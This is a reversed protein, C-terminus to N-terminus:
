VALAAALANAVNHDGLLPLEARPLLLDRDLRLAGSARDYWGPAAERITFERRQGPPNGVWQQSAGDDHNIVWVADRDANAFLRMNDRYYADLGPYRDLRDPALNTLVGVTPRVSPADHLQFSSLEVALASPPDKMLAIETLPTGINGATAFSRGS